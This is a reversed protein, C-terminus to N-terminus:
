DYVLRHSHVHRSHTTLTSKQKFAKFCIGCQYPREGTHVRIHKILYDKRGFRMKCIPCWFPKEGTHTRTHIALNSPHKTTFDCLTCRWKRALTQNSIGTANLMYHLSSKTAISANNDHCDTASTSPARHIHQSESQARKSQNTNSCTTKTAPLNVNSNGSIGDSRSPIKGNGPGYIHSKLSLLQNYYSSEFLSSVYKLDNLTIMLITSKKGNLQHRNHDNIRNHDNMNFGGDKTNRNSNHRQAM